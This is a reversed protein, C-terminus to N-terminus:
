EYYLLQRKYFYLENEILKKKEAIWNRLFYTKRIVILIGKINKLLKQCLAGTTKQPGSCIM